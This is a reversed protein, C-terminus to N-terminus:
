PSRVCLRLFLREYADDVGAASFDRAREAAMRGCRRAACRDALLDGLADALAGVDETPVVRGTGEVVVGAMEGVDTVVAPLGAAMAELLAMPLGERRSALVFVDSAALQERLAAPVLAGTFSVATSLGLEDALAELDGRWRGEGVLVLRATPLREVVEAFARLLLDQGKPEPALRGVTIATPPGDPAPITPDAAWWGVDVGNPVITVAARDVGARAAALEALEASVATVADARALLRPLRAGDVGRPSLLDSGHVAVVLRYRFVPRLLVFHVLEARAFHVNVVDPRFRALAAILRAGSVVTAAVSRATGALTARREPLALRLARGDDGGADATLEGAWLPAVVHGRERLGRVLRRYVTQVGGPRGRDTSSYVLM